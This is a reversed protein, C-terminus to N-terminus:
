HHYKTNGRHGMGGPYSTRQTVLKKKTMNVEVDGVSQSGEEEEKCGWTRTRM